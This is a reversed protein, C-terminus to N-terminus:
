IQLKMMLDTQESDGLKFVHTGFEVFGNKKYFNVARLNQGWVGLWIFEANKRKAIELAKNFLLQGIKRGHYEKLVYIREIEVTKDNKLETQSPGFNVKLYGVNNNEIKAFYFEANDDNLERSLKDTSFGEALYTRMNEETNNSSFTEYFTQRGLKQLQEIEKVTIRIIDIPKM